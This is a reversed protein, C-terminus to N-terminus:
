CGGTYVPPDCLQGNNYDAGGISGTDSLPRFLVTQSFKRPEVEESGFFVGMDSAGMGEYVALMKKMEAISFRVFLTKGQKSDCKGYSCGLLKKAYAESVPSPGTANAAMPAAMISSILLTFSFISKKM